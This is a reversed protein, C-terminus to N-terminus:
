EGIVPPSTVADTGFTEHHEPELLFSPREQEVRQPPQGGDAADAAPTTEM